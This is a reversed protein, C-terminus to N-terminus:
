IQKMMLVCLPVLYSKLSYGLPQHLALVLPLTYWFGLSDHRMNCHVEFSIGTQPHFQIINIQSLLMLMWFTFVVGGDLCPWEHRYEVDKSFVCDLHIFMLKHPSYFWRSYAKMKHKNRMNNLRQIFWKAQKMNPCSSMMKVTVHSLFLKVLRGCWLIM